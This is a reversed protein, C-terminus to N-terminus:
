GKPELLKQFPPYDRMSELDMDRHIYIGFELGQSFSEKILRVAEAHEGLLAHICARYYTHRGFLYKREVNMLENAIRRAEETDGARASLMGLSAKYFLDDPDETALERYLAYAEDWREARYLADALADRNEPDNEERWHIEQEAIRLAEVRNGHARLELSAVSMMYGVSSRSPEIQKSEEIVDYLEDIRELAALASVEDARCGLDNPFYKQAERAVELEKEHDGIAHYADCLVGFRWSVSAYDAHQIQIDIKSFTDITKRPRNLYLAHLGVLYNAIYDMPAISEIHLLTAFAEETKGQLRFAFWDLYYREASSLRSSHREITQFISDAADYHGINALGNAIRFKPAWWHPDIELARRYHEFSKQYDAGFCKTGELYEVYAEYIPPEGIMTINSRPSVHIALAGMVKKRLADIAKMPESRPGRVPDLTMMVDNREVDIIQTEIQIDEGVRYFMGAVLVGSHTATALEILKDRDEFGAGELGADRMLMFMTTTPIAEALENQMIGHTIWDSALRGIPDLESDGTRNEFTAVFVRNRHPPPVDSDKELFFIKYSVVAAVVIVLVIAIYILRARTGSRTGSLPQQADLEQAPPEAGVGAAVKKSTKRKLRRLDSLLDHMSQYRDSPDKELTREILNELRNSIEPLASSIPQPEENVISYMMAAEHDGRFPTQGTLMEHLVIGFSFIDSRQDVDQGQVQEPSMYAVTGVTTGERTIPVVDKLKALGFDMVKIRNRSDVMINSPKIDRHVIGKDHAESLAEAIQIAYEIAEKIPIAAPGIAGYKERLTMGDVYEMSIFQKGDEEEVSYITCINPHNLAAAAKAERMFRQKDEDTGALHQPLFKLAVTRDLRTDHAKYVVGMGGEGLKELIKYHSITKGIM